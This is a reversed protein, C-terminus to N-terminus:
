LYIFLRKDINLPVQKGELSANWFRTFSIEVKDKNEEIVTFNTAEIRCIYIM